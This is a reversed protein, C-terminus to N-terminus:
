KAGAKRLISEIETQGKKIAWKLPTAWTAGAKNPDAGYELLFKVMEVHGWKVALGLPTSQYEEELANVEAGHKVFYGAKELEGKQAMDHLITVHHWTMHNPNAGKELLFATMDAREFYYYQAWKTISPIKAGHSMLLEVLKFNGEKAPMMLIGEGWFYTKDLALKSDNRLFQETKDLDQKDVANEFEQEVTSRNYHIKGNDGKFKCLSPDDLYQELLSAITHYERDQAITLLSDLFPYTRYTPDLAGEGLLYKVLEIHGERVAFHIPPTYNYQAYILAPCEAVLEKVREVNGDRSATLIEWVKTTTSAMGNAIDMRLELKMENPRIM